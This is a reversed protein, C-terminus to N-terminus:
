AFPPSTMGPNASPWVWKMLPPNWSAETSRRRAAVGPSNMRWSRSYAPRSAGPSHIKPPSQSWVSQGPCGSGRCSHISETVGSLGTNRLLSSPWSARALAAAICAAPIVPFM